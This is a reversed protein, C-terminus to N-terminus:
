EFRCLCRGGSRSEMAVLGVNGSGVFRVEIRAGDGYGVSMCGVVGM